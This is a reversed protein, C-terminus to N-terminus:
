NGTKCKEALQVNGSKYCAELYSCATCTIRFWRPQDNCLPLDKSDILSASKNIQRLAEEKRGVDAMAVPRTEAFASRISLVMAVIRKM